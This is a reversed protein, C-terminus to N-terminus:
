LTRIELSVRGEESIEMVAYSAKKDPTRPLSISGPNLCTVGLVEKQVPVHIHGFFAYGCNNQRANMALPVLSDEDPGVSLTHGHTLYFRNHLFEIVRFPDYQTGFDCNGRVIVLGCLPDIEELERRIEFEGDEVDGLHLITKVNKEKRLVRFLNDHRNHTDSIILIKM